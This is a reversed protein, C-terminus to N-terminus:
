CGGKWNGCSKGSKGSGGSSGTKVNGIQDKAWESVSKGKKDYSALEREIKKLEKLLQERSSITALRNNIADMYDGVHRGGPSFHTTLGIGNDIADLGIGYKGLIAEAIKNSREVIHHAAQGEVLKGVKILSNRFANRAVREAIKVSAKEAMKGAKLADGAFPVIAALNIAAEGWNGRAASVISNVFDAPPGIPGAFGAGDLMDQFDDLSPYDTGSGRHGNADSKNVPDNAAYAYRNFDVGALIPDWTDPTLFRGLNPDYYRAHLYQLGTEADFRENIYAKGNLVTSGNSTLPNGFPGYDHRSTPQGGAMFSVLRNSALHDKHAWSTILAERKVDPHLNSTLLGTPNAANVLLEADNGLFYYTSGGFAKRAREGDPAYAFSTVNANQTITLPRNEGDYVFSRPLQAGAGDHDYSLTNGNADYTVATGCITTPAHPRVATAGPTPYALNPNAACLGSNWVMNDADDYAYARDDGTGNANDATILRDLADYGYTWSRGADPSTITTVMGKTNRAYNQDILTTAGNSSLVRTLFGRADNYTFATTVGNGYTISATQGRANYATSAIFLDPESASTTNANDMSALRGALDYVNNGTWTGDALQKRKLSGDVYYDFALTRDAGNINAHTEKSLRGAADYDYARTLSVAPLTGNVPVSRTATTLKGRNFFTSRGEDYTNSTTETALGAGSVTKTSVRSLSDYSLATVVGRADTQSTLRSGADYIYSWSGLDPDAVSVRRSLADYGYTWKNGLPDFVTKIRSLLDRNYQTALPTAGKMKTRKTFKANADLTFTQVHGIEDTATVISIDTAAAPALWYALTSFTADPNTVKTLRDLGDYTYTTSQQTEGTYFPATASAVEGRANYSTLTTITEGVTRGTSATSYSRGFGDIKETKARETTQGGAPPSTTEIRQLTPNGLDLYATATYDGLPRDQRTQRCLADYTNTTVQLNLDTQTLPAACVTDWTATTKFNTDNGPAFYKPLRTEVPYLSSEADYITGTRNGMADVDAVVNGFSDFERTTTAFTTGSILGRRTTAECRTPATTYAGAGDYYVQSEALLPTTTLNVGEFTQERGACSVLYDATNPTFTVFSTKEDGANVLEGQDTVRNVNGYLDFAFEQKSSKFTAGSYLKSEKSTNTCILPLQTDTTFGAVEASLLAAAGDKNEILSTKGLCAVSQQYTSVVQPRSTEGANAPLTATVTRFGMFQRESANWAGGTYAFDTAATNGRGDDLTIKKALQMVFPLKTGTTGASSQYEVTQKGGMPQTISLLLDPVPGTSVLMTNNRYFALSGSSSITYGRGAYIDDLGDGNFDSAFMKQWTSGTTPYSFAEPYYGSNRATAASVANSAFIALDPRGDGNFDQRGDGAQITTAAPAPNPVSPAAFASGMSLLVASTANNYFMVDTNGDGNVDTLRYSVNPLASFM